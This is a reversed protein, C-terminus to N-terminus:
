GGGQPGARADGLAARHACLRVDLRLNQRTYGQAGRLAEGGVAPWMLLGSGAKGQQRELPEKPAQPYSNSTLCLRHNPM